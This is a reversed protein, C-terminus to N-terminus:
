CTSRRVAVGGRMRLGYTGSIAELKPTVNQGGKAEAEHAKAWAALDTVEKRRAM